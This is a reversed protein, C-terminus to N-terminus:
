AKFLTNLTEQDDKLKSSHNLISITFLVVLFCLVAGKEVWRFILM